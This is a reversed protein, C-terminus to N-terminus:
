RTGAGRFGKQGEREIGEQITEVIAQTVQERTSELAPRLFPQAASHSTGREILHATRAPDYYVANGKDKGRTRIGILKRFGHRPGIIALVTGNSYTKVRQGMSKKLQGARARGLEDTGIERPAFRKAAKAVIRAAKGMAQRLIRRGVAAKLADLQKIADEVGTVTAQVQFPM